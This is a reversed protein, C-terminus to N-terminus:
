SSTGGEPLSSERALSGFVILSTDASAYKGLEQTLVSDLEDRVRKAAARAEPMPPADLLGSLETASNTVTEKM